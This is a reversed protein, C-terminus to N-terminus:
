PTGACPGATDPLMKPQRAYLNDVRRLLYTRTNIKRPGCFSGINVLCVRVQQGLKLPYARYMEQYYHLILGNTLEVQRDPPVPTWLGAVHTQRCEGLRFAPAAASVVEPAGLVCVLTLTFLARRTHSDPM